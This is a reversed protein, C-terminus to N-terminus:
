SCQGACRLLLRAGLNGPAPTVMDPEFNGTQNAVMISREIPKTRGFAFIVSRLCALSPSFNAPHSIFAGSLTRHHQALAVTLIKQQAPGRGFKAQPPSFVRRQEHGKPSPSVAITTPM